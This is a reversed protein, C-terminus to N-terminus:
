RISAYKKGRTRETVVLRYSYKRRLDFDACHPVRLGLPLGHYHVKHCLPCRIWVVGDSTISIVEADVIEVSPAETSQM